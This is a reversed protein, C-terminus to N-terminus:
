GEGLEVTGVVRFIYLMQCSNAGGIRVAVM